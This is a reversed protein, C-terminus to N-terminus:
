QLRCADGPWGGPASRQDPNKALPCNDEADKVGDGDMDLWCADGGEAPAQGLTKKQDPNPVLLCNDQANSIGDGDVDGDANCAGLNQDPNPIGPCNDFCGDRQGPRCYPRDDPGADPLGDGDSDLRPKPREACADGGGPLRAAALRRSRSGDHDADRQDANAVKPCNDKENAVADGDLDGDCADGEGDGDTDVQEWNAARPCNDHVNPREDGDLDDDCADGAKDGDLDEQVPNPDLPCNDREDPIWDKDPDADGPKAGADAAAPSAPAAPAEIAGEGGAPVDDVFQVDATKAGDEDWRLWRGTRKGDAYAGEWAKQGSEYWRTWPGHRKGERYDGAEMKQGNPYWETSGGHRLFSGDAAQKQCWQRTGAPPAHGIREAGEPCPRRGCGAMLTVALLASCRARM